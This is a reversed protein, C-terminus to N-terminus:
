YHRARRAVTDSIDFDLGEDDADEAGSETIELDDDGVDAAVDLEEDGSLGPSTVNLLDGDDVGTVDGTQTVDLLDSADVGSDDMATIDM